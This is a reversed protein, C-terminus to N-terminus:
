QATKSLVQTVNRWASIFPADLNIYLFSVVATLLAARLVFFLLQEVTAVEIEGRRILLVRYRVSKWFQM